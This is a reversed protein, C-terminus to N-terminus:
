QTKDFNSNYMIAKSVISDALLTKVFGGARTAAKFVIIALYLSKVIAKYVDSLYQAHLLNVDNVIAKYVNPQYQAYLLHMNTVLANYVNIQKPAYAALALTQMSSFNDMAPTKVATSSMFTNTINM